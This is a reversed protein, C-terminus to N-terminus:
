VRMPVAMRAVDVSKSTKLHPRLRVGLTKYRDTMAQINRRLRARDLVLAPTPLDALRM